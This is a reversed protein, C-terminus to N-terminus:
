FLGALPDPGIAVPHLYLLALYGAAALVIRRWGIARWVEIRGLAGPDLVGVRRYAPAAVLLNKVMSWAAILALGAFIVVLRTEGRNLLHLLAWLLVGLSGPVASLRYIGSPEKPDDRTTLRCTVLFVAVVMGGVALLRSGPPSPYLWPGPEAARYALVALALALLAVVSYAVLFGRRGFLDILRQRLGPASPVVHSAVLLATAAILWGM